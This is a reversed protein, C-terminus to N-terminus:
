KQHNDKFEGSDLYARGLRQFEEIGAIANKLETTILVELQLRQLETLHEATTRKGLLEKYLDYAMSVTGDMVTGGQLLHNLHPHDAKNKKTM